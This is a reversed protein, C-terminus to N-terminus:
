SRTFFFGPKRRPFLSTEVTQLPDALRRGARDDNLPGATEVLTTGCSITDDPPDSM